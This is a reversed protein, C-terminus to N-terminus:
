CKLLTKTPNAWDACRTRWNEGVRQRTTPFTSHWEAPISMFHGKKKKKLNGPNWGHSVVGERLPQQRLRCQMADAGKWGPLCPRLIAHTCGEITFIYMRPVAFLVIYLLTCVTTTIGGCWVSARSSVATLSWCSVENRGTKAKGIWDWVLGFGPQTAM